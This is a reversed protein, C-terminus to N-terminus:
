NLLTNTDGSVNRMIISVSSISEATENPLEAILVLHKVEGAAITGIYSGLDDELMTTLAYRAGENNISIKFKAGATVMDINVDEQSINQMDFNLVIFKCGQSARIAFYMEETDNDPYADKLEFGTYKIEVGNMGYFEEISKSKEIVTTENNNNETSIEEQSVQEETNAVETNVVEKNEPESVENLVETEEQETNDVLRSHYNTDYKLLLGAAYEVVQANEEETMEPISPISADCATMLLSAATLLVIVISKGKKM